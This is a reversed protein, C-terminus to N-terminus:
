VPYRALVIQQDEDNTGMIGYHDFYDLSIQFHHKLSTLSLLKDIFLTLSFFLSFSVNYALLILAIIISVFTITTSILYVSLM